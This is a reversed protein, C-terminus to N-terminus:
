PQVASLFILDSSFELAIGQRAFPDLENGPLEEARVVRAKGVLRSFPFDKRIERPVSISIYVGAQPGVEMRGRAEFYVGGMSINTTTAEEFILETPAEAKRVEIPLRFSFRRHKRNEFTRAM